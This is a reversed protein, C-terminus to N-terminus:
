KDFADGLEIADKHMQVQTKPNYYLTPNEARMKEYYAWTRDTTAPAFNSNMIQNRPPAINTVSTSQRENLGMTRFFAEPSKRALANVDETTLGLQETQESLIKTYQNGFKEKLKAMVTKVNEEARELAKTEQYKKSFFEDLNPMAPPTKDDENAPPTESSALGQAKLQDILEELAKGKDIEAKAALLDQRLEDKQQILSQIYLDSQAKARELDEQTKFKEKNKAITQEILSSEDPLQDNGPQFLDTM